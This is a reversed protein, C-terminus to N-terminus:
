GGAGSGNEGGPTTDPMTGGHSESKETVDAQISGHSLSATIVSQHNASQFTVGVGHGSHSTENAHFGSAPHIATVTLQDGDQHITIRGGISNVIKTATQPGSPAPPAPPNQQTPPSQPANTTPSGRGSGKPSSAIAPAGAPTDAASTDPMSSEPGAESSPLTVLAVTASATTAPATSTTTSSDDAETTAAIVTLDASTESSKQPVVSHRGPNQLAAVGVTAMILSLAAGTTWGVARRRRAQGVRRQWAAFAANDDPYPGSLRGLQQRLEPDHFESM